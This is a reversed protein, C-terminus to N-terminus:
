IEGYRGGWGKSGTLANAITLSIGSIVLLIFASALAAGLDNTSVNLYISAQLTETKMRTIGVLMLTAGFERLARSWVLIFASILVNKCLSLLVTIFCQGPTAGLLGGVRELKPDVGSFATVALKIVFPLNVALQAVVIGNQNFVVPFGAEKLAQGMPSAFIILLSLGLVIYPLSLTLELIVEVVPRLPIHIRTLAYGTPIALVFCILNSISATRISLGIAFLTEADLLCDVLSSAGLLAIVLVNGGIFVISLLTAM